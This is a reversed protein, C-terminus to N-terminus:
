NKIECDIIYDIFELPDHNVAHVSSEALEDIGLLKRFFGFFKTSISRSVEIELVLIDLFVIVYM